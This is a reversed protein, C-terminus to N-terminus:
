QVVLDRIICRREKGKTKAWSIWVQIWFENEDFLQPISASSINCDWILNNNWPLKQYALFVWSEQPNRLIQPVWSAKLSVSRTDLDALSLGGSWKSVVLKSYHIRPPKGDWLFNRVINKVDTIFKVSPSSIMLLKYVFQSLFLTNCIVIKGMINLSRNSWIMTLKLLKDLMGQYNDLLFQRTGLIKIGDVWFLNKLSYFQTNSNRLSGIRMIQTKDYNLELGSIHMFNYFYELLTDLNQQTGLIVAWIDDAFLGFMKELDQNLQIGRVKIDQTNKLILPQLALVFNGPSMVCGQRFGSKVQVDESVHGNNLVAISIRDYLSKM